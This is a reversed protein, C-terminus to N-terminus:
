ISMPGRNKSVIARHRKGTNKERPFPNQNIDDTPTIGGGVYQVQAIAAEAEKQYPAVMDKARDAEQKLYQEEKNLFDKQTALTTDNAIVRPNNNIASLFAAMTGKSAPDRNDIKDLSDALIKSRSIGTIESQPDKTNNLLPEEKDGLQIKAENMITSATVKFEREKVKEVAWRPVYNQASTTFTSKGARGRVQEFAVDKCIDPQELSQVLQNEIAITVDPQGDNIAHRILAGSVGHAAMVKLSQEIREDTALKGALFSGDAAKLSESFHHGTTTVQDFPEEDRHKALTTDIPPDFAFIVAVQKGQKKAQTADSLAAEINQTEIIANQAETEPSIDNAKKGIDVTIIEDVGRNELFANTADKKVQGQSCLGVITISGEIANEINIQKTPEEKGAAHLREQEALKHVIKSVKRASIEAAARQKFFAITDSSIAVTNRGLRPLMKATQAAISAQEFLGTVLKEAIEIFPIPGKEEAEKEFKKAEELLIEPANAGRQNPAAHTELTEKGRYLNTNREVHLRGALKPDQEPNNHEGRGYTDVLIGIIDRMRQLAASDLTSPEDKKKPEQNTCKPDDYTATAEMARYKKHEAELPYKVYPPFTEGQNAWKSLRNQPPMEWGHEKRLYGRWAIEIDRSFARADHETLDTVEVAYTGNEEKNTFVMQKVREDQKANLLRQCVISLRRADEKSPVTFIMKGAVAMNNKTHVHEADVRTIAQFTDFLEQGLKESDLGVIGEMTEHLAKEIMDFQRSVRRASIFDVINGPDRAETTTYIGNEALVARVEKSMKHIPIAKGSQTLAEDAALLAARQEASMKKGPNEHDNPEQAM